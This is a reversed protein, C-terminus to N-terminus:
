DSREEVGIAREVERTMPDLQSGILDRVVDEAVEPPTDTSALAYVRAVLTKPLDGLLRRNCAEIRGFVHTRVLGRSILEGETEENGLRKERIVEIEKLALLWDRFTSETGFRELVPRLLEAIQELEEPSGDFQLENEEQGPRATTPKSPRKKSEGGSKTPAPPLEPDSKPQRTPTRAAKPIEVGRGALWARCAPHDLDVRDGAAAPALGKACQKTVAAKSVGALKALEARSITRQPM